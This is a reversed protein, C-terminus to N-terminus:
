PAALGNHQGDYVCEADGPTCHCRAECAPCDHLRGPLHPCDAHPVPDEGGPGPDPAHEAPIVAYAAVAVGYYSFETHCYTAMGTEDHHPESILVGGFRLAWRTIARLSAPDADFQLSIDQTDAVTIYRPQPLNAAEQLLNLTGVVLSGIPLPPLEPLAPGDKPDYIRIITM